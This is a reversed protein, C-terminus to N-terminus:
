SYKMVHVKFCKRVLEETVKGSRIRNKILSEVPKRKNPLDYLHFLILLDLSKLHQEPNVTGREIALFWADSIQVESNMALRIVELVLVDFEDTKAVTPKKKLRQSLMMEFGKDLDLNDRLTDIEFEAEKATTCSVIFKVMIPLDKKPADKITELVNSRLMMSVDPKLSLNSFTDLITATLHKKSLWAEKKLEEAIMAHLNDPIIEPLSSVIEVQLSDPTAEMIELLKKALDPGNKTVNM